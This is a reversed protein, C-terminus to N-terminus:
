LVRGAVAPPGIIDIAGLWNACFYLSFITSKAVATYDERGAPTDHLVHFAAKMIEKIKWSRKNSGTKLSGHVVHLSCSGIDILIHFMAKEQSKVIEDYFKAKVKPRDMSIQYLKKLDLDKTTAM